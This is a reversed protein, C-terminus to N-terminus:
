HSRAGSISAQVMRSEINRLIEGAERSDLTEDIFAILAFPTEGLSRLEWTESQPRSSRSFWAANLPSQTIEADGFIEVLTISLTKQLAASLLVRRLTWGHKKYLALIEKIAPADIM